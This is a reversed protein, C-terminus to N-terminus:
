WPVLPLPAKRGSGGPTRHVNYVHIACCKTRLLTKYIPTNSGSDLRQAVGITLHSTGKSTLITWSNIQNFVYIKEETPFYYERLFQVCLFYITCFPDFVSLFQDYIITYFFYFLLPIHSQAKVSFHHLNDHSPLFM